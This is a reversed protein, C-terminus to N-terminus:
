TGVYFPGSCLLVSFIIINSHLIIETNHAFETESTHTVFGLTVIITYM